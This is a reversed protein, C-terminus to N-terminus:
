RQTRAAVQESALNQTKTPRTVVYTAIAIALLWMAVRAYPATVFWMTTIAFSLVIAAVATAKARVTFGNGARWDRVIGGFIRNTVLWNDFRDSSKSFFFAALLIPGTTPLGPVVVGIFAIAVWLWGLAMLVMRLIPNKVVAVSPLTSLREGSLM